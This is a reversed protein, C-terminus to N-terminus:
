APYARRGPAPAQPAPEETWVPLRFSFTSGKGPESEIALESGHAQVLSNALSLGVGFGRAARKGSETRYYGALIREKDESSIGIGSDRCFVEVRGPVEAPRHLGLTVKGGEPTYKIANSLLNTAVLSLAEPDARVPVPQEPFELAVTLGKRMSLVELRQATQQLVSRVEIRRTNIAFRGSELRGMNLLNSCALTMTRVSDKIMDYYRERKDRPEDDSDELLATVGTIVTMANNFEHSVMAVLQTKIDGLEKERLFQRNLRGAMEGMRDILGAVESGADGGRLEWPRGLQWSRASQELRLIPGILYRSLFLGLLVSSALGTLLVFVLALLSARHVSERQLALNQASVEKLETIGAAIERFPTDLAVLRSADARSLRRSEKLAIWQEQQALYAAVRRELDFLPREDSRAKLIASLGAETGRLNNLARQRRELWQPGGELLYRDTADDLARLTDRLQPLKTLVALDERFSLELREQARAQVWYALGLGITYLEVFAVVLLLQTKLRLGGRM